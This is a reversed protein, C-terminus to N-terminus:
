RPAGAEDQRCRWVDFYETEGTRAYSSRFASKFRDDFVSTRRGPFYGNAMEFPDAGRAVLWVDLACSRVLRLTADPITLGSLQAEVVAPPDILYPHGQFVLWPRYMSLYEPGGSGIGVKIGPHAATFRRLDEVVRPNRRDGMTRLFGQQQAV